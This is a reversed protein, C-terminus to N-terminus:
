IVRHHWAAAAAALLPPLSLSLSLKSLAAAFASHEDENEESRLKSDKVHPHGGGGGKQAQGMGAAFRCRCHRWHSRAACVAFAVTNIILLTDFQLHCKPVRLQGSKGQIRHGHRQGRTCLRFFNGAGELLLEVKADLM